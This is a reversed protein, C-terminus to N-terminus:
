GHIIMPPLERPPPGFTRRAAKIASRALALNGAAGIGAGIGLPMARGAVLAGQRAGFRTLLHRGVMQNARSPGGASGKRPVGERLAKTWHETGRGTAELAQTGGQGLLVTLVLARRTDQDSVQIGHVEAVALTFLATAEVFAAIEAAGTAVSAATGLGPIAAAGGSAAGISVVAARYRRELHEILEAPTADPHRTRQRQVYTIVARRQVTLARDLAEDFGQEISNPVPVKALLRRTLKPM